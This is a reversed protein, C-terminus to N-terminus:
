SLEDDKSAIKLNLSNVPAQSYYYKEVYENFFEPEITSAFWTQRVIIYNIISRLCEGIVAIINMELGSWGKKGDAGIVNYVNTPDYLALVEIQKGSMRLVNNFFLGSYMSNVEDSSSVFESESLLMLTNSGNKYEPPNWAYIDISDRQVEVFIANIQNGVLHKLMNYMNEAKVPDNQNLLIINQSRRDLVNFRYFNLLEHPDSIQVSSIILQNQLDFRPIKLNLENTYYLIAWTVESYSPICKPLHEVQNRGSDDYLILISRLQQLQMLRALFLALGTASNVTPAVLM